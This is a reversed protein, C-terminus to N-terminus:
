SEATEEDSESLLDIMDANDAGLAALVRRASDVTRFRVQGREIKSVTSQSVGAQDALDTQNISRFNRMLSVREAATKAAVIQQLQPVSYKGSLLKRTVGLNAEAQSRQLDLASDLEEIERLLEEYVEARMLVYDRGEVQLREIKKEPDAFEKDPSDRRLGERLRQMESM